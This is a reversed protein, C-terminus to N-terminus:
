PVKRPERCRRMVSRVSLRWRRPLKTEAQNLLSRTVSSGAAMMLLGAIILPFGPVVPIIGLVVGAVVMLLGVVFLATRRFASRQGAPSPAPLFEGALLEADRDTPTSASPPQM